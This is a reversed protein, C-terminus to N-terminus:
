QNQSRHTEKDTKDDLSVESYTDNGDSDTSKDERTLHLDSLVLETGSPNGDDKPIDITFFDEGHYSDYYRDFPSARFIKSSICDQPSYTFKYDSLLFDLIQQGKTEKLNNWKYGTVAAIIVCSAAIVVIGPILIALRIMGHPLVSLIFFIVFEVPITIAFAINRKRKAKKLEAKDEDTLISEVFAEFEEETKM